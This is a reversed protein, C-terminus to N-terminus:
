TRSRDVFVGLYRRLLDSGLPGGINSVYEAHWRKNYPRFQEYSTRSPVLLTAPGKLSHEASTHNGQSMISSMGRYFEQVGRWSGNTFRLPMPFALNVARPKRVSSVANSSPLGWMSLLGAPTLCFNVDHLYNVWYKWCMTEASCEVFCV